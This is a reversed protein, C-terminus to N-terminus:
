QKADYVSVVMQESVIQMCDEEAPEDQVEAEKSM